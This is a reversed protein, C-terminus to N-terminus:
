IQMRSIEMYAQVVKDRIAIATNLSREAAMVSDVVDRTNVNVGSMQQLSLSEAAGIKQTLAHSINALVHEFSAGQVQNTNNVLNTANTALNQVASTANTGLNAVQGISGILDNM